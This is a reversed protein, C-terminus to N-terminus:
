QTSTSRAAIAIPVVALLQAIVALAVTAIVSVDYLAGLAVIASVEM